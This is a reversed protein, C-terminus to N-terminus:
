SCGSAAATQLLQEARRWDREASGSPRGNLEWLLQATERIRQENVPCEHLQRAPSGPLVLERALRDRARSHVLRAKEVELLAAEVQGTDIAAAGILRQLADLKRSYDRFSTRYAIKLSNKSDAANSEKPAPAVQMGSVKM